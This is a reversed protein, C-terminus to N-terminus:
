NRSTTVETRNGNIDRNELIDTREEEKNRLRIGQGDSEGEALHPKSKKSKGRNDYEWSDDWKTNTDFLSDSM